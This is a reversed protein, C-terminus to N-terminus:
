RKRARRKDGRRSTGRTPNLSDVVNETTTADATTAAGVTSPTLSNTAKPLPNATAVPKASVIPTTQAVRRRSAERGQFESWEERAKPYTRTMYLGGRVLQVVALVTVAWLWLRIDFGPIGLARAAFALLGLVSLIFVARSARNVLTYRLLNNEYRYKGRFFLFGSVLAAVLALVLFITSWLRLVDTDKPASFLYSWDLPNTFSM